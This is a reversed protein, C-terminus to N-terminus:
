VGLANLVADCFDQDGDQSKRSIAGREWMETLIDQLWILQKITLQRGSRKLRGWTKMANITQKNLLAYNKAKKAMHTIVTGSIAALRDIPDESIHKKLTERAVYFSSEDPGRNEIAEIAEKLISIDDVMSLIIWTSIHPLREALFNRSEEELGTLHLIGVLELPSCKRKSSDNLYRSSQEISLQNNFFADSVGQTYNVLDARDSEWAEKLDILSV